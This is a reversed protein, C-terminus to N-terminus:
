RQKQKEPKVKLNCLAAILYYSRSESLKEQIRSCPRVVETSTKAGKPNYLFGRTFFGETFLGLLARRCSCRCRSIRFRTPPRLQNCRPRGLFFSPLCPLASSCPLPCPLASCLLLAPCLVVPLCAPCLVALCSGLVFFVSLCPWLHILNPAGQRCGSRGQGRRHSEVTHPQSTNRDNRLRDTVRGYRTRLADTVLLTVSLNRVSVSLWPCM